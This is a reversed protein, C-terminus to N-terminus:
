SRRHASAYLVIASHARGYFANMPDRVSDRADCPDPGDLIAVGMWSNRPFSRRGGRARTLAATCAPGLYEGGHRVAAERLGLAALLGGASAGPTPV